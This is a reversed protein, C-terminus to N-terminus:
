FVVRSFKEVSLKNEVTDELSAWSGKGEIIDVVVLYIERLTDKHNLFMTALDDETCEAGSISLVRLSPLILSTSLTRLGGDEICPDFDLSLQKLAPFLGVFNSLDEAWVNAKKNSKPDIMINLSTVLTLQSLSQSIGIDSWLPLMEPSMPERNFGPSIDLHDLSVQSSIIATLVVRVTHKIYDISEVRRMSTTPFIGTQRKQSAAGWPRNMDNICVTKCNLLNVLARTLSITDLGNHGLRKQDQLCREYAEEDVAAEINSEAGLEWDGPKDWTGPHYSPPEETLHDVCIELTQLAPGFIPHFSIELLNYLSYRNLMHYRIKFYCSLFQSFSKSNLDKCTLRLNLFDDTELEIALLTVIEAPLDALM